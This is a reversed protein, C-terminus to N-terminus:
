YDRSINMIVGMFFMSMVLSTGGFSIFTLTIGTVPILGIVVAMNIFAQYVLLSVLGMCLYYSYLSEAKRAIKIGRYFLMGYLFIIISALIFGGEECIISFIFDSYQLPLYFFKLKSEGLGRGFIGGSGVAILSQVLHYNRGYPDSWPSLFGKIRSLQYPHRLISMIVFFLSSGMVILLHTFPIHSLFLLTGAVLLIVGINGLDPQMALIFIPLLIVISIPMLGKRLSYLVQKKHELATALFVIISFKAIEVPQISTFGLRLWRSAGGIKVGLGPILTGILLLVAVGIGLLAYDKYRRHPIFFGVWFCGTGIVIFLIHKQIFYYSNNYSSQGVVSSTSFIMVLSILLLIIMPLCSVWDAKIWQKKM